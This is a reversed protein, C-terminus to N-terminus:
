TRGDSKRTSVAGQSKKAARLMTRDFDDLRQQMEYVRDRTKPQSQMM